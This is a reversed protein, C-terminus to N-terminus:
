SGSLPPIEWEAGELRDAKLKNGSVAGPHLAFVVAHGPEDTGWHWAMVGNGSKRLQGVHLRAVGWESPSRDGLVVSLDVERRRLESLLNVSMCARPLGMSMARAPNQDQFAGPRFHAETLGAANQVWKYHQLPVRRLVIEDDGIEADDQLQEPIPSCSM